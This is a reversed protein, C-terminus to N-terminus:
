RLLQGHKPHMGRPRVMSHGAWWSEDTGPPTSKRFSSGSLHMTGTSSAWEAKRSFNSCSASAAFAKTHRPHRDYLSHCSESHLLKVAEDGNGRRRMVEGLERLSTHTQPHDEGLKAKRGEWARRYAEEAEPLRGRIVCTAGLEQLNTLTLPNAAGHTKSTGMAGYLNAQVVAQREAGRSVRTREGLSM